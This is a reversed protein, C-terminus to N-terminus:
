LTTDLATQLHWYAAPSLGRERLAAGFRQWEKRRSTAETSKCEQTQTCDLRVCLARSGCYLVCKLNHCLCLDSGFTWPVYEVLCCCYYWSLRTGPRMGPIITDYWDIGTTDYLWYQLQVGIEINLVHHCVRLVVTCYDHCCDCWLGFGVLIINRVSNWLNLQWCLLLHRELECIRLYKLGGLHHCEQRLLLYQQRQVSPRVLGPLFRRPSSSALSKQGVLWRAAVWQCVPSLQVGNVTRRPWSLPSRDRVRDSYTICM